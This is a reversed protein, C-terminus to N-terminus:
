SMCPSEYKLHIYNGLLMLDLFLTSTTRQSKKVCSNGPSMPYHGYLALTAAEPLDKADHQRVNTRFCGDFNPSSVVLVPWELVVHLTNAWFFAHAFSFSFTFFAAENIRISLGTFTRGIRAQRLLPHRQNGTPSSCCHHLDELRTDRLSSMYFCRDTDGLHM